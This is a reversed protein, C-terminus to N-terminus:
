IILPGQILLRLTLPLLFLHWVMIVKKLLYNLFKLLLLLLLLTPLLLRLHNRAREKLQKLKYWEPYDHKKWCVDITHRTSNCHTYFCSSSDTSPTFSTPQISNKHIAMASAEFHDETGM